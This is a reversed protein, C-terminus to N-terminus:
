TDCSCIKLTPTIKQRTPCHLAGRKGKKNQFRPKPIGRKRNRERKGDFEKHLRSAVDNTMITGKPPAPVGLKNYLKELDSWDNKINAIRIEDEIRQRMLKAQEAAVRKRDIIRRQAKLRREIMANRQLTKERQNEGRFMRIRRLRKTIYQKDQNQLRKKEIKELRKERETNKQKALVDAREQKLDIKISTEIWKKLFTRQVKLWSIENSNAIEQQKRAVIEDRELKRRQLANEIVKQKTGMSTKRDRERREWKVSYVIQKHLEEEDRKLTELHKQLAELDEMNLNLNEQTNEESNRLFTPLAKQVSDNQLKRNKEALQVMVERSENAKMDDSVITLLDKRM